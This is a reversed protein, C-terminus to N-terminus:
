RKQDAFGTVKVVSAAGSNPTIFIGANHRGSGVPAFKIMLTCTEGATLGATLCGGGSALSYSANNFSVAVTPSGPVGFNAVVLPLLTTSGYPVSGFKLVGESLPGVGSALGRLEVGAWTRSSVPLPALTPSKLFLTNTHQGVGAADFEIPLVCSQGASVGGGSCTNEATKLVKYNPSDIFSSFSWRESGNNTITVPLVENSGIAIDPFDLRLTSVQILDAPPTFIYAAGQDMQFHLTESYAGAIVTGGSVAVKLGLESSTPDAEGDFEQFPAFASSWGAEPKSYVFFSNGESGVVLYQANMALAEGFNQIDVPSVLEVRETANTWGSPPKAFLDVTGGGKNDSASLLSGVAITDDFVAISFGFEDSSGPNARSLKATPSQEAEWGGAAKEFVYAAGVLSGSVHTPFGVAVTNGSIAVSPFSDEGPATLKAAYSSTTTWGGAPQVFVFAAAEAGVVITQGDIALAFGFSEVGSVTLEATETMDKWGSAPRVFIYAKGDSGVVITDGSIAVSIGFFADPASPRLIATQTKSTWGRSSKQYIYAATKHHASCHFNAQRCNQGVVATDGSIAVSVGFNDFSEADSATLQAGPGTYTSQALVSSTALAVMSFLALTFLAKPRM